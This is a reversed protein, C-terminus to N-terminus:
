KENLVSIDFIYTNGALFAKKNEFLFGYAEKLTMNKNKMTKQLGHCMQVPVSYGNKKADEYWEGVSDYKSIDM